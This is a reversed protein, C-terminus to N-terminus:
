LGNETLRLSLVGSNPDPEYCAVWGDDGKREIVFDIGGAEYGAMADEVGVEARLRASQDVAEAESLGFATVWEVTPAATDFQSCFLRYLAATQEMAYPMLDDAVIWYDDMNWGGAASVLDPRHRGTDSIEPEDDGAVQLRGAKNWCPYEETYDITTVFLDELGTYERIEGEAGGRQGDQGWLLFRLGASTTVEYFDADNQLAAHRDNHVHTPTTMDALLHAVRGLTYYALAKDGQGYAGLAEQWLATAAEYASLYRGDQPDVVFSTV